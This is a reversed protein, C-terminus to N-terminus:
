KEEEVTDTWAEALPEALKQKKLTSRKKASQTEAPVQDKVQGKQSKGGRFARSLLGSRSRCQRKEPAVAEARVTCLSTVVLAPIDRDHSLNIQEPNQPDINWGGWSRFQTM